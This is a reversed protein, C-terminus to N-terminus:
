RYRPGNLEEIRSSPRVPQDDHPRRPAPVPAYGYGQGHRRRRRQVLVIAIAGGTAALSLGALLVILGAPPSSSARHKAAETAPLPAATPQGAGAKDVDSKAQAGVGPTPGPAAGAGPVASVEASRPSVQTGDLLAVQFYYRTGDNLPAVTYSTTFEVLHPVSPKAGEHGPSTAMYILYGEGTKLGGPPPSWSLVVEGRRPQATLGAPSAPGAQAPATHPAPTVPTAPTGDPTVTVTAVAGDGSSNHANVRFFYTTGNTLGSMTATTGTVQDTISADSPSTGGQIVYGDVPSGGDSSPASWSLTVTGNGPAATLGAPAGPPTPTDPVVTATATTTVQPAAPAPTSTVAAMAGAANGCILLVAIGVATASARPSFAHFKM